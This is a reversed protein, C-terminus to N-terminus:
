DALGLQRELEEASIAKEGSALHREYEAEALYADEMDELCRTLAERVYYSRPRKTQRSLAALRDEIDKSLRVTLM